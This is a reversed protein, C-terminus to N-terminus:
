FINLSMMNYIKKKVYHGMIIKRKVYYNEGNILENEQVQQYM